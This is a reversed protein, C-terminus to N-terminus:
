ETNGGRKEHFTYKRSTIPLDEDRHCIKGTKGKHGNCVNYNHKREAKTFLFGQYEIESGVVSGLVAYRCTRTTKHAQDVQAKAPWSKINNDKKLYQEYENKMVVWYEKIIAFLSLFLLKHSISLSEM